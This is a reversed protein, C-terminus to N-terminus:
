LNSSNGQIRQIQQTLLSALQAEPINVAWPPIASPPLTFGVMAARVQECDVSLEPRLSPASYLRDVEEVESPRRANDSAPPHDAGPVTNTTANEGEPLETDSDSEEDSSPGVVPGQSLLEYGPPANGLMDDESEDSEVAVAQSPFSMRDDAEQPPEPSLASVM